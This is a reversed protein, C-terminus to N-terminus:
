HCTVVICSLHHIHMIFSLNVSSGSQRTLHERRGVQWTESALETSRGPRSIGGQVWFQRTLSKKALPGILAFVQDTCSEGLTFVSSTLNHQAAEIYYM